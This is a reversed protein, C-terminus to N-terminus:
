EATGQVAEDLLAQYVDRGETLAQNPAAVELLNLVRKSRRQQEEKCSSPGGFLNLILGANSLNNTLILRYGSSATFEALAKGVRAMALGDLSAEPTEMIFTASGTPAAVRVLALRFALDILERQSESVDTPDFRRVLGPRDAAAMEAQYAPFQLRESDGASEAQTYRPKVKVEALQASEALLQDTYECFTKAVADSKARIVSEKEALLKALDRVVEALEAKRELHQRRLTAVTNELEKSAVSNALKSRLKESRAKRDAISDRLRVLKLLSDRYTNSIGELRERKAIVEDSAVRMAERAVGLQANEFSFDGALYNQEEPPSGCAPCIGKQLFGELEKQKDEVKADCVLCKYQTLIRAFVLRSAEQMSPYRSALASYKLREEQGAAQEQSIKAKEHELRVDHREKDLVDLLNELRRKEDLEVQLLEHEAAFQAADGTSGAEDRRAQSLEKETATMRAHINRAQSDASQVLRELESVRLADSKDLFLSRLIQRQANQDWLAGPRDEPFLVVHHLILLVDVFSGLGMLEALTFQYSEERGAKTTTAMRSEGDVQFEILSLDAMKRAVSVMHPGFSATLRITADRADDAVRQKFFSLAKPRLRVPGKPLSVGVEGIAGQGTLDFPGTLARLIAILLTTKGLGNIGIFLTAGSELTQDIGSGPPKGPFLGYSQIELRRIVPLKIM